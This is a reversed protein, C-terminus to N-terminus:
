EHRKTRIFAPRAILRDLYDDLVQSEFPAGFGRGWLLTHGLLIDAVSFRQGVIYERGELGAALVKAARAWEFTAVRHMEPLRYDRPLAIRHKGMSWLPQELDTVTWFIWQECLAYDASGYEPLLGAKPDKRAIYKCIAGSEFLVLDGDKLTPVRGNPNMALYEPSRHEAASFNIKRFNYDVGAEEATWLARRARSSVVGYIDM